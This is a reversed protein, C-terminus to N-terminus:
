PLLERPISVTEGLKSAVIARCAATLTTGGYSPFPSAKPIAQCALGKKDLRDHTIGIKFKDILPGGQGWDTSPTYFRWCKFLKMDHDDAWCDPDFDREFAPQGKRLVLNEVAEVRAVAWDLAAGVLEATKVEVFEGM